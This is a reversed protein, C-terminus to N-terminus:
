LAFDCDRVAAAPGVAAFASGPYAFDKARLGSSLGGPAFRRPTLPGFVDDVLLVTFDATAVAVAVIGMRWPASILVAGGASDVPRRTAMVPDPPM